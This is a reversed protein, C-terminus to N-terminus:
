ETKWGREEIFYRIRQAWDPRFEAVHYMISAVRRKDEESLKSILVELDGLDQERLAIIKMSVLEALGLVWIRLRKLSLDLPALRDKFDKPFIDAFPKGADSMWDEPLNHNHAVERVARRLEQIDGRLLLADVDRTAREAGYHLIMAAGGFLVVECPTSLRQDLEAFIEALQRKDV